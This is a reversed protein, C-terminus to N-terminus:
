NPAREQGITQPVATRLLVLYVGAMTWRLLVTSVVIGVPGLLVFLIVDLVANLVATVVAIALMWRQRRAVVLLRTGVVNFVHAPLSLMVIAGWLFGQGWSAPLLGSALGALCALAGAATLAATVLGLVRGDRRLLAAADGPAMTPLRAWAGVRRVIFAMSVFQSAAYMLRDAIEYSSVAGAGSASLFLRDVAPGLQTVGSSLAQAVLGFPTLAGDDAGAQQARLRRAALGLVVARAAEGAPLMAAVVVLPADWWIALLVAPLLTRMAQVAIPVTPGGRAICEGSLISAVAALIPAPAVACVLVVFESRAPSGIAYAVALAPVVLVTLATAFLMVRRRYDRLAGPAPNRDRGLVRGYEAITTLEVASSVIVSVTIAVSMALLLVDSTGPALVLAAVFPLTFGPLSGVIAAIATPLDKRM